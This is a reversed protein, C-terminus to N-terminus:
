PWTSSITDGIVEQLKRKTEKREKKSVHKSCVPLPLVYVIHPGGLAMILLPPVRLALRPTPGRKKLMNNESILLTREKKERCGKHAEFFRTGKTMLFYGFKM